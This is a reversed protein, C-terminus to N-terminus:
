KICVVLLIQGQSALITSLVLLAEICNLIKLSVDRLNLFIIHYSCLSPVHNLKIWSPKVCFSMLTSKRNSFLMNTMKYLKWELFFHHTVWTKSLFIFRFDIFLDLLLVIIQVLLSLTMLMFWSLYINTMMVFLSYGDQFGSFWLIIFIWYPLLFM